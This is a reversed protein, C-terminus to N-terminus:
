ILYVLYIKQNDSNYTLDLRIQNNSTDCCTGPAAWHVKNNWTVMDTSQIVNLQGISDSGFWAMFMKASSPNWVLAQGFNSTEGLQVQTSTDWQAYTNTCTASSPPATSSLNWGQCGNSFNTNTFLSWSNNISASATPIVALVLIMSVPILLRSLKKMLSAGAEVGSRDM